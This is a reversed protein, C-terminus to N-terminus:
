DEATQGDESTNSEQDEIREPPNQLRRMSAGLVEMIGGKNFRERLILETELDNNRKLFDRNHEELAKNEKRLSETQESVQQEAWRRYLLLVVLITLISFLLWFTPSSVWKHYFVRDEKKLLEQNGDTYFKINQVAGAGKEIGIVTITFSCNPALGHQTSGNIPIWGKNAVRQTLKIQGDASVIVDAADRLNINGVKDLFISGKPSNVDFDFTINDARTLSNNQVFFTQVFRGDINKQPSSYWFFDQVFYAYFFGFLPLGGLQGLHILVTWALKLERM